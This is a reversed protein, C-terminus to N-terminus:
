IGIFTPQIDLSEEAQPWPHRYSDQVLVFQFLTDMRTEGQAVLHKLAQQVAFEYRGLFSNLVYEEVEVYEARKKRGDVLSRMVGSTQRQKREKIGVRGVEYSEGDVSKISITSDEDLQ